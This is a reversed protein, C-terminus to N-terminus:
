IMLDSGTEEVTTKKWWRVWKRGGRGGVRGGKGVCVGYDM